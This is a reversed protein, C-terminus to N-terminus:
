THQLAIPVDSLHIITRNQQAYVEALLAGNRDYIKTTQPIQRLTLEQPTPLDQLFIMILFPPFIFICAFLIGIFFYKIKTRFPLSFTKKRRKRLLKKTFFWPALVLKKCFFLFGTLINELVILLVLIPFILWLLIRM